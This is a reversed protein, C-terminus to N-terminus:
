SVNKKKSNTVFLFVINNGEASYSSVYTAELNQSPLAVRFERVTISMLVSM